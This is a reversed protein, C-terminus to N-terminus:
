PEGEEGKGNWGRWYQRTKEKEEKRKEVERGKVRRSTICHLPTRGEGTQVAGKRGETPVSKEEKEKRKRECVREPNTEGREGERRWEWQIGDEEYVQAM